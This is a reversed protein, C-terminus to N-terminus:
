QLPCIKMRDTIIPKIIAPKQDKNHHKWPRVPSVENFRGENGGTKRKEESQKGFYYWTVPM